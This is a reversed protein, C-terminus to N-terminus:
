KSTTRCTSRYLLDVDDVNCSMLGRLHGEVEHQNLTLACEGRSVGAFMTKDRGLVADDFDKKFGLVNVYYRIAAECDKVPMDPVGRQFRNAAYEEKTPMPGQVKSSGIPQGCRNAQVIALREDNTVDAPGHRVTSAHGLRHGGDRVVGNSARSNARSVAKLLLFTVSPNAKRKVSNARAMEAFKGLSAFVYIAARLREERVNAAQRPNSFRAFVRLPALPRISGV